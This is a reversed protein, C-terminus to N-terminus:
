RSKIGVGFCLGSKIGQYYVLVLGFGQKFHDLYLPSIDLTSIDDDTRWKETDLKM